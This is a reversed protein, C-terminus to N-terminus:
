STPSPFNLNKYRNSQRLNELWNLYQDRLGRQPENIDFSFFNIVRLGSPATSMYVLYFDSNSNHYMNRSPSFYYYISQMLIKNGKQGLSFGIEKNKQQPSLSSKLSGDPDKSWVSFLSFLSPPPPFKNYM